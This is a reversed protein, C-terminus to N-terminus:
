EQALVSNSLYKKAKRLIWESVNEDDKALNLALKWLEAVNPYARILSFIAFLTDQYNASEQYLSNVLDFTIFRDKHDKIKLLDAKKEKPLASLEEKILLRTFHIDEISEMRLFEAHTAFSSINFPNPKSVRDLYTGCKEFLGIMRSAALLTEKNQLNYRELRLTDVLVVLISDAPKLNELAREYVYKVDRLEAESSVFTDTFIESKRLTQLIAYNLWFYVDVKLKSRSLTPHFEPMNLSPFSLGLAISYLELADDLDKSHYKFTFPIAHYGVFCSRVANITFHILMSKLRTDGLEIACKALGNWIAFNHKNLFKEIISRMAEDAEGSIQAIKLQLIHLEPIWDFAEIAQRVFLKLEEEVFEVGSTEKTALMFSVYTRVLAVYSKKSDENVLLRWSVAIHRVLKGIQRVTVDGNGEEVDGFLQASKAEWDGRDLTWNVVFLDTRILWHNPYRNRLSFPLIGYYLLSFLCLWGFAVHERTLLHHAASRTIRPLASNFNMSSSLNEEYNTLFTELNEVTLFNYIWAIARMPQNSELYLVARHIMSNVINLSRIPKDIESKSFQTIIRYLINKKMVPDKEWVYYRWWFKSHNPLFKVSHDFMSRVDSGKARRCYLELYFDWASEFQRNCKIAKSLVSLSGNFNASVQDLQDLTLTKPLLEIAYNLWLGENQPDNAVATEYEDVSMSSQYYREYKSRTPFSDTDGDLLSLLGHDLIPQPSPFIVKEELYVTSLKTPAKAINELPVDPRLQKARGQHKMIPTFGLNAGLKQSSIISGTRNLPDSIISFQTDDRDTHKKNTETSYEMLDTVIEHSTMSISRFHQATCTSDQCIGGNTEFVCFGVKPDIKNSYSISRVGNQVTENYSPNLRFSKFRSLFTKYPAAGEVDSIGVSNASIQRSGIDNLEDSNRIIGTDYLDTAVALEDELFCFGGVDYLPSAIKFGRELAQLQDLIGNNDEVIPISYDDDKPLVIFDDSNSGLEDEARKRKKPSLNDHITSTGAEPDNSSSAKQIENDTLSIELEKESISRRIQNIFDEFKKEELVKIKSQINATSQKTADLRAQADNLKTSLEVIETETSETLAMLKAEEEKLDVISKQVKALETEATGLATKLKEVVTILKTKKEELTVRRLSSPKQPPSDSKVSSTSQEGNVIGNAVGSKSRKEIMMQLKRKEIELQMMKKRLELAQKEDLKGSKNGEGNPKSGEEESDSDSLEIIYKKKPVSPLDNLDSAVPRRMRSNIRDDYTAPRLRSPSSSSSSPVVTPNTANMFSEVSGGSDVKKSTPIKPSDSKEPVLTNNEKAPLEVRPEPEVAKPESEDNSDSDGNDIEMEDSSVIEEFIRAKQLPSPTNALNEAQYNPMEFSTNSNTPNKLNDTTTPEQILSASIVDMSVGLTVLDTVAVGCILMAQITQKIEIYLAPLQLLYFLQNQPPICTIQALQTFQPLTAGPNYNLSSNSLSQPAPNVPSFNQYITPPVFQNQIPTPNPFSPTQNFVPTFSNNAIPQNGSSISKDGTALMLGCLNM